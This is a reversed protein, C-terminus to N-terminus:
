LIGVGFIISIGIKKPWSMQLNWIIRQPLIFMTLDSIVQVSASTLMVEPLSYCKSPIYFKWIAEHPRCQLNLLIICLLGWVCQLTIVMWCTIWFLNRAKDIPVFVRCWDM